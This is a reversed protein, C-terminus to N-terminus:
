ETLIFKSLMLLSSFKKLVGPYSGIVTDKPIFKKAIVGLENPIETSKRVDVLDEIVSGRPRQSYLVYGLLGTVAVAPAIPDLDSISNSTSEINLSKLSSLIADNVGSADSFLLSPIDFWSSAVAVSNRRKSNYGVLNNRLFPARLTNVDWCLCLITAIALFKHLLM